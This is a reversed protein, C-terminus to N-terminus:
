PGCVDDAATLVVAEATPAPAPAAPAPTVRQGAVVVPQPSRYSSGVVVELTEELERDVEIVSGPLAAALTRAAGAQGPGARVVTRATGTGRNVPGGAVEFGLEALEDAAQRGLGTIGGGNLVQVRVDSPPVVLAPQEDPAPPDPDPAGPPLDRRLRDFLEEAAVEDLLVVSEGGRRASLEAVPVTTFAVAGAEAGRMRLALERLDGLELGEDVQLSDTAADLFGNLKLPNLLTGASLTKRVIAAMFQQQRGIRDIDGQPLGTRQRVFALAQDGHVVQRGAPLDIGSDKDKAPESLCVEVGGLREVMTTFGNFDVQVYHDIRIGTLQEVTAVLLPPGGLTFSSNIKGEHARTVERTAPDSYSPIAVFSDRPISVMQARDSDGFLHALIITDARQGTVFDQGRGQAGEGAALGERSDSGVLLLTQADRPGDDAPRDVGPLDLVGGIRDINGDYTTVLAWGAGAAALVAVSTVVALWSLVRALRRGRRTGDRPLVDRAPAAEHARDRRERSGRRPPSAPRPPRPLAVRVSGSTAAGPLRRGPPGAPPGVERPDSV